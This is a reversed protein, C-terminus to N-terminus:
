LKQMELCLQSGWSKWQCRGEGTPKNAFNLLATRNVQRSITIWSDNVEHCSNCVVKFTYFYPNEVTDVPTLDTVGDLQAKIFLGLKVM